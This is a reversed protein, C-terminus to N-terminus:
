KCKALIADAVMSAILKAGNHNPHIGDSVLMKEDTIAQRLDLVELKNKKAVKDIIPNIANVLVSDSMGHHEKFIRIPHALIIRPKAPLARLTDVMAQLDHEFDKGYKWNHAKTDNTGLKIIVINPDFAQVMKWAGSKVYPYDGKSLMTYGAMGYNHVNFAPGLLQQLQAPYGFESAMDICSGRTISNGICAVRIAEEKPAKLDGLWSKLDELMQDHHKFWNAFGWGHGGKPYIHMTCPNGAKRMASYYAIANQVPPVTRDDNSLLLIAPPTSYHNVKLENSYEKVWQENEKKDGLFRRWTGEHTGKGMTIVPYVLISFNPLADFPAHTSVTAALHGGASFGMIGVDRRNIHWVEASDRVTRMAQYADGVPIDPNGNPLRYKLTFYAIGQANFWEAWDTGEKEFSLGGYAGGPCAVIARGNAKEPLFCHLESQGDSSNSLVFKRATQAQVTIAAMLTAAMLFLKQIM